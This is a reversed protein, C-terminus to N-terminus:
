AHAVVEDTVCDRVRLSWDGGSVLRKWHRVFAAVRAPDARRYAQAGPAEHPAPERETIAGYVGAEWLGARHGDGALTYYALALRANEAAEWGAFVVRLSPIQAETERVTRGGLPRWDVAM